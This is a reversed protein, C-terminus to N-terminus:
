LAKISTRPVSEGTRLAACGPTAGDTTRGGAARDMTRGGEARDTTQDGATSGTVGGPGAGSTAGGAAGVPWAPTGLRRGYTAWMSVYLDETCLQCTM